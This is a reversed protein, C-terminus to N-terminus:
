FGEVVIWGTYATTTDPDISLETATTTVGPVTSPNTILPVDAFATPYTITQAVATDNEYASLYVVCKKYSTGQFPMSWYVTGATTGAFSNLAADDNLPAETTFGTLGSVAGGSITGANTMTEGAPIDAGASFTQLAQWNVASASSLRGQAPAYGM